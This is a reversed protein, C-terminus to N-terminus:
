LQMTLVPGWDVFLNSYANKSAVAKEFIITYIRARGRRSLGHMTRTHTGDCRARKVLDSAICAFDMYQVYMLLMIHRSPFKLGHLTPINM